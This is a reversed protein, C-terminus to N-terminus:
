SGPRATAPAIRVDRRELADRVARAILSADPTDSHLCITAVDVRLEGGDMTGVPEGLALRVAQEAAADPDSILAGGATRPALRGDPLYRRDAFGEPIASLGESRAVSLLVSGALAVLALSPDAVKTAGVIVRSLAEDDAAENYLAGHPKVHALRVGHREAVAALADLQGTLSARLDEDPISMRRRGYGERDPYSPHAGVAVGLRAAQAVSREMTEEDGAHAGCAISVSTVFDFLPLDDHGEGVDANLDISRM